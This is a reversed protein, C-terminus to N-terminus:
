LCDDRTNETQVTSGNVMTAVARITYVGPLTPSYSGSAVANHTPSFNHTLTKNEPGLIWIQIKNILYKPDSPVTEFSANTNYNISGNVYKALAHAASHAAFLAALILILKKM